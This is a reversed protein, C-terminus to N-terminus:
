TGYQIAVTNPILALAKEAEDDDLEDDVEEPENAVPAPAPTQNTLSLPDESDRSALAEISYNQQQMYITDGGEIPVLNMKRRAENPTMISGSVASTLMTIQRGSDMRFLSDLNLEIRATDPLGLGQAMVQEFKEIHIQLGNSYYAQIIAEINDHTPMPGVGVMHPPVGFTSCIAEDTWDLQAIVQSDVSTMRMSEYKLGDGLIAVNGANDGAFKSQWYEKMRQASDPDIPGPAVLVGSPQAGNEFFRRSDKQIALGQQAAIKSAYLPSLGVLPHFFANMRDHTVESAPVVIQEAHVKSLNDTDLRYFVEGQESVLPTVRTPDLIHIGLVTGDRDREKLGYTNGHILKSYMWWEKFEIHSQYANPRYLLNLFRPMNRNSWVGSAPDLSQTRPCLKGVDSALRSICAYVIPHSIVSDERDLPTDQQWRGPLFDFIRTWTRDNVTILGQKEQDTPQQKNSWPWIAM